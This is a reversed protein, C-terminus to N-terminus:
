KGLATLLQDVGIHNEDCPESAQYGELPGLDQWVERRWSVHGTAYEIRLEGRQPDDPNSVVLENRLPRVALGHGKLMAAVTRRATNQDIIHQLRANPPGDGTMLM